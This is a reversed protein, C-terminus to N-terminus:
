LTRWSWLYSVSAVIGAAMLVTGVPDTLGNAFDRVVVLAGFVMVVFALFRWIPLLNVTIRRTM